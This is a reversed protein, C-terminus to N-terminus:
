ACRWRTLTLSDLGLEVVLGLCCVEALDVRSMRSCAACDDSWHCTPPRIASILMPPRSLPCPFRLSFSDAAQPVPPFFPVRRRRPWPMSGSAHREFPYTPLVVRRAHSHWAAATKGRPGYVVVPRRLAFVALEGAAASRGALAGGDPHEDGSSASAGPDVPQRAPGAEVFVAGPMEAQLTRVAPPLAGAKEPAGVLLQTVRRGGGPSGPPGHGDIIPIAPASLAM